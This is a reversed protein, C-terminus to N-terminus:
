RNLYLPGLDTGIKLRMDTFNLGHSGNLTIIIGRQFRMTKITYLERLPRYIAVLTFLASHYLSDIQPMLYMPVDFEPM